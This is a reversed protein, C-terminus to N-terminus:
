LDSKIRKDDWGMMKAHKKLDATTNLEALLEIEDDRAHPYVERLFKVAKSNSEKKKPAIWKHYQKGMDPSVTTAMLWQFKKHKSTNIDFFNKNLKENTSILYYAQLDASGEVSSGWRIMIYPSFKKKEEESLDDYFNKNKRDFQLMENGISLKDITM